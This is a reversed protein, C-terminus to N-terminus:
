ASINKDQQEIKEAMDKRYQKLKERVAKDAVAIISAAFLGANKAGAKGIAMSAVPIGGPMQVTALLADLGKLPSSDLPVGIVPLTTHAAVVGALHAAFGAGAIIVSIGRSEANLVLDRVKEPTRHASAVHREAAIGFETLVKTAEDMMPLDNESGMLILVQPKHM